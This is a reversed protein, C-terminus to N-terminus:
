AHFTLFRPTQHYYTNGIFGPECYRRLRLWTREEPVEVKPKTLEQLFIALIQDENNLKLKRKRKQSPPNNVSFYCDAALVNEQEM